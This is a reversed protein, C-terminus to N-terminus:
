GAGRDADAMFLYRGGGVGVVAGAHSISRARAAVLLVGGQVGTHEDHGDDTEHGTQRHEAPDTSVTHAVHQGLQAVVMPPM